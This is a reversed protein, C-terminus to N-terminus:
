KASIGFDIIKIKSTDHIYLINSPNIDKHVINSKHIDSLGKCINIFLLIIKEYNGYLLDLQSELSKADIDEIVIYKKKAKKSIELVNIVYESQIENLLSYENQLKQVDEPSPYETSIVKLICPNKSQDRARYLIINKGTHLHDLDTYDDLEM